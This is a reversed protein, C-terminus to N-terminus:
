ELDTWSTRLIFPIEMPLSTLEMPLSATISSVIVPASLTSVDIVKVSSTDAIFVTQEDPSLAIDIANGNTDIDGVISYSGASVEVIKLGGTSDALFVKSGDSSM